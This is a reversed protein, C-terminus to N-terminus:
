IRGGAWLIGRRLVTRFGEDAFAQNDHGGQYCFVRSSAFTRTWAIAKMSRPHDTALLIRNGSKPEGMVYTEDVLDWDELGDTIAHDPDVVRVSLRQDHHYEFREDVRRDQIGVMEDWVPWDPYALLSHHLMVIGRGPRGLGSLAKRPKGAFWPRGEDAPGELLMTYFLVVDYGNRTQERSAAYDEMHQLYASIGALDRFMDSFGVVDFAHGGTVVAVRVKQAASM